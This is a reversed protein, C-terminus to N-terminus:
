PINLQEKLPQLPGQPDGLGRDLQFRIQLDSSQGAHDALMKRRRKKLSVLSMQEGGTRRETKGVTRSGKQGITKDIRGLVTGGITEETTREGIRGGIMEQVIEIIRGGIM